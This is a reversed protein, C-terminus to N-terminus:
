NGGEGKNEFYYVNINCTKCTYNVIEKDVKDGTTTNNNFLVIVKQHKPYCIGYAIVQGIAHKWNNILKVEIICNPTLLDIFGASCAVERQGGWKSQLQLVIENEPSIKNLEPPLSDFFLSLQKVKKEVSWHGPMLHKALCKASKRRFAGARKGPLGLILKLIFEWSAVPTDNQGRGKFKFLGISNLGESNDKKFRQWIKGVQKRRDQKTIHEVVDLVSIQDDPTVRIAFPTEDVNGEQDLNITILRNNNKDFLM